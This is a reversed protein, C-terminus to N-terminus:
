WEDSKAMRSVRRVCEDRILEYMALAEDILPSYSFTDDNLLLSLREENEVLKSSTSRSFHEKYHAKFIEMYEM